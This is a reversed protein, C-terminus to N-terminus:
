LKNLGSKKELDSLKDGGSSIGKPIHGLSSGNSLTFGKWKEFSGRETKNM